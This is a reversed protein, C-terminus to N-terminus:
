MGDGACCCCCCNEEGSKGVSPLKPVVPRSWEGIMAGVCEPVTKGLRSMDVDYGTVAACMDGVWLPLLLPM